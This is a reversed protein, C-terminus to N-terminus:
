LDCIMIAEVADEVAFVWPVAAAGVIEMGGAPSSARIARLEAPPAGVMPVPPPPEPVVASAVETSSLFITRRWPELRLRM